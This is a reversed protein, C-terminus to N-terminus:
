LFQWRATTARWGCSIAPPITSSQPMITATGSGSSGGTVYVDGAADVALANAQDDSNGTGNYRAVWLQNGDADYKVTAYDYGTASGSSYGTVYVNGSADVALAEASDVSNGPGNYRAAWLENGTSDYKVTAYDSGAQVGGTVYVNGAADVALATAAYHWARAGIYVRWGSSIATPMTSSRPMAAGKLIRGGTVYVNGAADVALATAHATSHGPGNYRAVWLQNGNADYKITAYDNSPGSSSGTVYVNGAADVALAAAHTKTVPRVTTPRWGSSM